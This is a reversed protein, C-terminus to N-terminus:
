RFFEVGNSRSAAMTMMTRQRTVADPIDFNRDRREPSYLGLRGLLQRERMDAFHRAAYLNDDYSDMLHFRRRGAHDPLDADILGPSIRCVPTDAHDVTHDPM